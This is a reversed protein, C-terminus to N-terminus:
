KSLLAKLASGLDQENDEEWDKHSKIQDETYDRFICKEVEDVFYKSFKRYQDRMAQNTNADPDNVMLNLMGQAQQTWNGKLDGILNAAPSRPM